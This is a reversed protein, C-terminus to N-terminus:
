ALCLFDNNDPGTRASQGSGNQQLSRADIYGDHFASLNDAAAGGGHLAVTKLEIGPWGEKKIGPYQAFDKSGGASVEIFLDGHVPQIGLVPQDEARASFQQCGWVELSHLARDCLKARAVCAAELAEETVIAVLELFKCRKQLRGELAPSVQGLKVHELQQREQARPAREIRVQAAIEFIFANAEAEAELGLIETHRREGAGTQEANEREQLIFVADKMGYTTAARDGLRHSADRSSRPAFTSSLSGTSSIIKAPRLHVATRVAFRVSAASATTTLASKAWAICRM